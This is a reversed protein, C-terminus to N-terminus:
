LAGIQGLLSIADPYSRWHTIRGDDSVQVVVAEVISVTRGTPPKGVYSGTHVGSLVIEAVATDGAETWKTPTWSLDSFAAVFESLNRWFDERNDFTLPGDQVTVDEAVHGAAGALDGAAVKAWVTELTERALGM